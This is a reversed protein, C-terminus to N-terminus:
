RVLQAAPEWRRLRLLFPPDVCIARKGKFKICAVHECVRVFSVQLGRVTVVSLTCVAWLMGLYVSFRFGPLLGSM